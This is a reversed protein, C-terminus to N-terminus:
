KIVVKVINDNIREIVRYVFKKTMFEESSAITAIGGNAPKCYGGVKCTGDDRVSLVGMWGIASWEKRDERHIYQMESNYDPNEKYTTITVKRVKEEGNEDIYKEEKEVDEYIFSGFEDFLYQGLWGEDSNGIICPNGSVAGLIYEDENALRIMNPKEEDFTVFYGRRDENNPNGDAWEAYEAYDAGTSNYAAKGYVAGAGTVRFANSASDPTGNGIVFLTGETGSHSGAPALSTNNYHGQAHQYNLATTYYGEAHATIGQAKTYYGEAHSYDSSATTYGGESHAGMVGSATTKEGEAHSYYGTAKCRSGLAHADDASAVNGYGSAFSYWGSSENEKGFAVSSFGVTTGSKRAGLTLSNSFVPAVAPAYNHTYGNIQEQINSTAGTLYNLEAATANVGTIADATAAHKVTKDIDATNDVNGLGVQTKTVAHPNETNAIHENVATTTTDLKSNTATASQKVENISLNLETLSTNTNTNVSDIETNLRDILGKIAVGQAASLPQNSINTTLNDIIDTISVKDTTVSKILSRNGKIYTVLESMQDLTTDDSDALANLRTSLDTILVRIDNHAETSANHISVESTSAGKPDANVDDTTLVINDTLAKGNITRTASVKSDLQTQMSNLNNLTDVSVTVGLQELTINHPNLKDEIHTNIKNTNEIISDANVKVQGDTYTKAATVAETVQAPVPMEGVWEAIKQDTYSKVSDISESVNGLGIDEPTLVINDSLEKGNVTTTKPVKSDLIDQINNPVGNQLSENVDDRIQDVEAKSYVDLNERAEVTTSAGTGGQSISLPPISGEAVDEFDINSDVSTADTNITIPYVPEGTVADKLQIFKINDSM